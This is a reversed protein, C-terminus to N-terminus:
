PALFSTVAEVFAERQELMPLHGAGNLIALRSGPIAGHFAEAYATPILGDSAGWVILTPAKVRHIRKKLGKDPIPWMFKGASALCRYSELALTPDRFRSLLMKGVPGTPDHLASRVMQEPSFTFFDPIPVADLWLGAPCILVLRDVLQPALAAIEAALMGGLSHGVLHPKEIGVEELFDLYYLAFDLIDDLHEVGEGPGFGPHAPAYVTFRKALDDLFPAGTMPGGADHLFLLPDGRGLREVATTFKGSRISVQISEM